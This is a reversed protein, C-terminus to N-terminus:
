YASRIRRRLSSPATYHYEGPSRARRASSSPPPETEHVWVEDVPAIPMLAFVDGNPDFVCSFGTPAARTLANMVELLVGSGDDTSWWAHTGDHLAASPIAAIPGEAATLEAHAAPALAALAELLRPLVVVPESSGASLTYVGM